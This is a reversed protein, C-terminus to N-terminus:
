KFALLNYNFSRINLTLSKDRIFVSFSQVKGSPGLPLLDGVATSTAEDEVDEWDEIEVTSSLLSCLLSASAELTWSECNSSILKLRASETSTSTCNM